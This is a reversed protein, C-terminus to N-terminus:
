WRSNNIQNNLTYDMLHRQAVIHTQEHFKNGKREIIDHQEDTINIVGDDALGEIYAKQLKNLKIM